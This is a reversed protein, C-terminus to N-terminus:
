ITSSGDKDVGNQGGNSDEEEEEEAEIEDDEDQDNEIDNVKELEKQNNKMNNRRKQYCRCGMFICLFSLIVIFSIFAACVYPSDLISECDDAGDDDWYYDNPDDMEDHYELEARSKAM